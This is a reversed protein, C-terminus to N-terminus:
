THDHSTWGFRHLCIEAETNSDWPIHGLANCCSLGNWAPEGVFGSGPEGAQVSVNKELLDVCGKERYSCKPHTCVGNVPSVKIGGLRRCAGGPERRKGWKDVEGGQMVPSLLVLSRLPRQCLPDCSSHVRAVVWRVSVNLIFIM